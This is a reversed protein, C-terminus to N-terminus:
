AKRQIPTIMADSPLISVIPTVEAKEQKKCEILEIVTGLLQRHNEKGRIIQTFFEPFNDFNLGQQKSTRKPHVKSTKSLAFVYKAGLVNELFALKEVLAPLEEVTIKEKKIIERYITYSVDFVEDLKKANSKTKRKPRAVAECIDKLLASHKQTDNAISLFITKAPELEVRDAIATYLVSTNNEIMSLCNLYSKALKPRNSNAM